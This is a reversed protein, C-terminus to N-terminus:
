PRSCLHQVKFFTDDSSTYQLDGEKHRLMMEKHVPAIAAMTSVGDGQRYLADAERLRRLWIDRHPAVSVPACLMQVAYCPLPADAPLLNSCHHPAVPCASRAVFHHLTAEYHPQGGNTWKM